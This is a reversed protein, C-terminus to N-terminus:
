TEQKRDLDIVLDDKMFDTIDLEPIARALIRPHNDATSAILAARAPIVMQALAGGDPNFAMVRRSPNIDITNIALRIQRHAIAPHDVKHVRISNGFTEVLEALSHRGPHGYGESEEYSEYDEYVPFPM